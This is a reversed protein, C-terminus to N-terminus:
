STQAVIRNRINSSSTQVQSAGHQTLETLRTLTLPPPINSSAVSHPVNNPVSSLDLRGFQILDALPRDIGITDALSRYNELLNAPQTNVMTLNEMSLPVNQSSSPFVLSEVILEEIHPLYRQPSLSSSQTPFENIVPISM